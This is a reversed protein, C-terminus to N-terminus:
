FQNHIKWLLNQMQMRVTSTSTIYHNIMLSFIFTKGSKTILFGSLNHNNNLTGTKGHIYPPDSKYYNKLTGTEGGTPLFDYLKDRPEIDSLKKLITVMNAPTELNFRSLGSGDVWVPKDPLDALYKQESYAIVSQTSLTDGMTSSCMLLLQEALFNDSVRLMRKYMTDAPISYLTAASSDLPIHVIHVPKHLTDSLMSVMLSPTYKFPTDIIVMGTDTEPYFSFHNSDFSRVIQDDVNSSPAEEKVMSLFYPPSVKHASASTDLSITTTRKIKFRVVDGYIPFAAREPSYYYNYDDWSWGPGLPKDKFNGPSYCLTGNFKELFQYARNGTFDPHLFTPDGTGWFILSDNRIQYRFAPLSDGLMQLGTYFSYLKNNSAPTFYKHADHEYIMKHISPDYLAFGVFDQKFVSATDLIQNIQTAATSRESSLDGQKVTSCAVFGFVCWVIIAWSNKKIIQLLRRITM